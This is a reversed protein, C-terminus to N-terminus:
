KNKPASAAYGQQIAKHIDKLTGKKNSINRYKEGLDLASIMKEEVPCIEVHGHVHKFYIFDGPGVGLKDLIKVPVTIQRKATLKCEQTLM